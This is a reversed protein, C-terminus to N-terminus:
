IDLEKLKRERVIKKFCQIAKERLDLNSTQLYETYLVIDLYPSLIEMDSIEMHSNDFLNIITEVCKDFDNTTQLINILENKRALQEDSIPYLNRGM